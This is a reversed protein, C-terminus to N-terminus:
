ADDGDDGAVSGRQSSNRGNTRTSGHRLEDAVKSVSATLCECADPDGGVLM